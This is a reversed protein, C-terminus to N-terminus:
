SGHLTDGELYMQVREGLADKGLPAVDVTSDQEVFVLHCTGEKKLYDRAAHYYVSLQISYAPVNDMTLDTKYDYIAFRDGFDALLDITGRVMAGGLPIMCDVETHLTAGRLSALLADLRLRVEQPGRVDLGRAMREAMHHVMIGYATGRGTDLAYAGMIDHASLVAPAGKGQSAPPPLPAEKHAHPAPVPRMPPPIDECTCVADFFPSPTDAATLVVYQKARTIAVFFLRREEDYSPIRTANVLRTKWSPHICHYPGITGYVKKCRLGGTDDLYMADSDGGQAPFRNKNCDAIIVIPYELGKSGHITQVTVADPTTVLGVDYQERNTINDEVYTVLEELSLPYADFLTRVVHIIAESVATRLGSEYFVQTVLEVINAKHRLLRGRADSLLPPYPRKERPTTKLIGRKETFTCGAHELLVTWGRADHRYSLVRLWALLLAGERTAFLEIGGDYNIPIGASLGQERLRIGVDRTRTLVAIDGYAPTRTTGTAPDMIRYSTGQVIDQIVALVLATEDEKSAARYCRLGTHPGYEHHAVLRLIRADTEDPDFPEDKTAPILLAQPAADLLAQSSRFNLVFGMLRPEPLDPVRRKGRNLASAAERVKEPFNVINEITANRFGYIGQKWDGVVCLNPERLLMLTLMLQMDNTDQFEDIMVYPVAVSARLGPDHYLQLFAFMTLFDFCLHNEEVSKRIYALYIDHVFAKLRGRDERAAEELRRPELNLPLYLDNPLDLCVANQSVPGFRRRLPSQVPKTAGQGPENLRGVLDLFAEPDGDLLKEGELFWGDATPFIGRSLLRRIIALVEAYAGGVICFIDRYADEHEEKFADFVRKFFTRELVDTQVIRYGRSLTEDIGLHRPANTPEASLVTNCFSHFTSISLAMLDLAYPSDLLANVIKEKMNEAANRTFTLVIIDRPTLDPRRELIRMYRRTITYTKGTGPGADVAIVGDITNVVEDQERNDVM